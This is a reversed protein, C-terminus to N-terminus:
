IKSVPLSRIFDMVPEMSDVFEMKFDYHDSKAILFELLREKDEEKFQDELNVIKKRSGAYIWIQFWRKNRLIYIKEIEEWRINRYYFAGEERISYEDVTVKRRLMLGLGIFVAAFPITYPIFFGIFCYAGTNVISRVIFNTVIVLGAVFGIILSITLIPSVNRFSSQMELKVYGHLARVSVM